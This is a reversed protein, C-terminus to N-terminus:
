TRQIQRSERASTRCALQPQRMGKSPTRRDAEMWRRDRAYRKAPFESEAAPEWATGPIRRLPARAVVWRTEVRVFHHIDLPLLAVRIPQRSNTRVSRRKRARISHLQRFSWTM